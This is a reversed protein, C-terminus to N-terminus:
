NIISQPGWLNQPFDGLFKLDGSLTMEAEGQKEKTRMIIGRLEQNKRM